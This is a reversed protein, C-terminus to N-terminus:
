WIYILHCICKYIPIFANLATKQGLIHLHLSKCLAGWIKAAIKKNHFTITICKPSDYINKEESIKSVSGVIGNVLGDNIDIHNIFM